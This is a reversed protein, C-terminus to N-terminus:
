IMVITKFEIKDSKIPFSEKTRKEYIDILKLYSDENIYKIYSCTGIIKDQLFADSLGNLVYQHIMKSTEILYDKSITLKNTNKTKEYVINIGVFKISDGDKKFVRKFSKKTNVLLNNRNLEENIDNFISGFEKSNTKSSVLIDDAYRTVVVHKYKNKIYEDFTYLYIDSLKPSCIFGIPLHGNYFMIKLIKKLQLRYNGYVKLYEGLMKEIHDCIKIALKESNISEFFNKIDIKYFYKSHKHAEICKKTNSDAKYGYSIDSSDFNNVLFKNIKNHLDKLQKGRSNNKYTIIKRKKNKTTIYFSQVYKNQNKSYDNIIEKEESTLNFLKYIFAKKEFYRNAKTPKNSGLRSLTFKRDAGTPNSKKILDVCCIIHNLIDDFDKYGECKLNANRNIFLNLNNFKYAHEFLFCNFIDRILYEKILEFNEPTLKYNRMISEIYYFLTKVNTLFQVNNNSIEYFFQGFKIIDPLTDSFVIKEPTTYQPLNFLDNKIYESLEKPITNNAFYIYDNNGSEEYRAQYYCINKENAYIVYEGVKPIRKYKRLSDVFISVNNNAMSNTFLGLEYSTSITDLFIYTKFSIASVIEELLSYRLKYKEIQEHNNFILDVIIPTAKYKPTVSSKFNKEIYKQVIFRRNAYLSEMYKKNEKLEFEHYEIPDLKNRKSELDNKSIPQPFFPGCLFILPRNIELTKIYNIM